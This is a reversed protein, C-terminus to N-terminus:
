RGACIRNIAAPQGGPPQIGTHDKVVWAPSKDLLNVSEVLRKSEVYPLLDEVKKRRM